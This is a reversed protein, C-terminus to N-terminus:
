RREKRYPGFRTSAFRGGHREVPIAILKGICSCSRDVFKSM